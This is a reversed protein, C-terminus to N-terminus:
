ADETNMPLPWKVLLFLSAEVGIATGTQTWTCIPETGICVIHHLNFGVLVGM